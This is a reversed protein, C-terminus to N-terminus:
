RLVSVPRVRGIQLALEPPLGSAIPSLDVVRLVSDRFDGVVLLARDSDIALEFPGRFGPVVGLLEFTDVDYVWVTGADFATVALITRGGITGTAMRSPGAGVVSVNVQLLEGPNIPTGLLDLTVVVEPRRSLVHVYRGDGSFAVDRTDLGDDLGNILVRGAGFASSCTPNSGDYEVGILTIDRSRRAANVTASNAWAVGTFPDLSVDTLDVTIGDLRHVLTPPGTGDPSELFLSAHGGRHLMILYDSTDEAHGTLLSVPGTVVGVPDGALTLDQGCANTRGTVNRADACRLPSGSGDCAFTGAAEDFDIWMIDGDSRTPVYIRDGDSSVAVSALHPGVLVEHAFPVADSPITVGDRTALGPADPILHVCPRVTDEDPDDATPCLAVEAAIADLDYSQVSGMDYRLDFDANGVLVYGPREGPAAPRSLEIAIPFNLSAVPTPAADVAECGGALMSAALACSLFALPRM